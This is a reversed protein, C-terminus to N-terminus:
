GKKRNRKNQHHMLLDEKLKLKQYEYCTHGINKQFINKIDKNDHDIKQTKFIQKNDCKKLVM